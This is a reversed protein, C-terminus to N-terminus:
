FYTSITFIASGLWFVSYRYLLLVTDVEVLLRSTCIFVNKMFNALKLLLRKEVMSVFIIETDFLIPLFM